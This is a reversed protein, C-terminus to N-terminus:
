GERTDPQPSRVRAAQPKGHQTPDGHVSMGDDNGRHGAPNQDSTTRGIGAEGRMGLSLPRGWRQALDAGVNTTELGARRESRMVAQRSAADGLRCMKRSPKSPKTVEVMAGIAGPQLSGTALRSKCGSFVLVKVRRVCLSVGRLEWLSVGRLEGPTPRAAQLARSARRRRSIPWEIVSPPVQVQVPHVVAPHTSTAIRREDHNSTTQTPIFRRSIRRAIRLTPRDSRLLYPLLDLAM